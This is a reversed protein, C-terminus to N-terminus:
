VHACLGENFFYIGMVPPSIPTIQTGQPQPVVEAFQEVQGTSAALFFFFLTSWDVRGICCVSPCISLQFHEKDVLLLVSKWIPISLKGRGSNQSM